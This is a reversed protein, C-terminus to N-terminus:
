SSPAAAAEATPATAKTKGPFDRAFHEACRGRDVLPKRCNEVRCSKRRPKPLEGRRWARYHRKCYGKGGDAALKCEDKRCESQEPM